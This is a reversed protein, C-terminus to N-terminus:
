TRVNSGRELGRRPTSFNQPSPKLPYRRHFDRTKALAHVDTADIWCRESPPYGVWDILYKLRGRIIRSDLIEHVLYEEQSNVLIAPPPTAQHRHSFQNQKTKTLLSVHFVPHIKLWPPLQLEFAVENIRRCIKFPGLQKFDLKQSPRSSTINKASLWVEDGIELVPGKMRHEDAFKKQDVLAASLNDKLQQQTQQIIRFHDEAAPVLLDTPTLFEFKPHYGTNAFFPTFKTSANLTNNFSFEALPLLSVWNDQHYSIFCRLYQELTQNTRETQGDTQPHYASSMSQKIGLLELFRKWFRSTFQSGRDSIIEDPLGHLRLVHNIFLEATEEASPLSEIPIFHAMKTWRDVITLITTMGVSNPLEVIFDMSLSSWPRTPIPLPMLLGHSKHRPTKARACTDCSDCFDKVTKELGPWWFKRKVLESTKRRGYHGALTSDHCTELAELRLNGEPIYMRTNLYPINDVLTLQPRLNTNMRNQYFSDQALADRVKDVFTKRNNRTIAAIQIVHPELITQEQLPEGKLLEYDPRRSLADARSNTAGPKYRIVFDFRKFFLAWRAHRQNTVKTNSLYELGKHDSFVTVQHLAGELHHRWEEFAVKIALLEKDYIPYNREAPILARSYFACPRLKDDNDKQLLVCGLAFDSADTEVWFPKDPQAHLLLPVSVMREKLSDFAQQCENSWYFPTDKRLLRVIPTTIKAFDPVFERLYNAGGLFKQIDKKSLPCPWEVISKIKDEDSFRGDASINFGLFKISPVSFQCKELKAYLRNERLKQLVSRVHTRHTDENESFILFDDLYIIVFKDTMEAFIENVFRQFYAPANALGFPMVLYEYLGYRTRFATKWEDGERVRVLNYASRLDIKTFIKASRLRDFLENILPLPYRFKETIKDLGSYNVVLRKQPVKGIDRKKGKEKDVFFIPAGASSTSKRIFGKKSNEELYEKVLRDEDPSLPYVRSYPPQQNPLLNIECDYPRHQPLKNAEEVSFVDAFDSYESPLTKELKTSDPSPDTPDLSTSSALTYVLNTDSLPLRAPTLDPAPLNVLDINSVPQTVPIIDLNPPYLQSTNWVSQTVFSRKPAPLNVLNSSSAPLSVLNSSSAPLNVLNSSSAPLNVLNSSSAPLNVSDFIQCHVKCHESNFCLSSTSWNTQSVHLRLWPLGLIIEYNPSGIVDFHTLGCHSLSDSGQCIMKLCTEELIKGSALPRGDVGLIEIPNQKKSVPIDYKTAFKSDIFNGDAGTDVMAPVLIPESDPKIFLWVQIILKNIQNDM